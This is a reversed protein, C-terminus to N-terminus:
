EDGGALWGQVIKSIGQVAQDAYEELRGLLNGTSSDYQRHSCCYGACYVEVVAMAGGYALYIPAALRGLVRLSSRGGLRLKTSLVSPLTTFKSAGPRRMSALIQGALDHEGVAEALSAVWAKPLMQGALFGIAKGIIMNMPDNDEICRGTCIIWDDMRDWISRTSEPDTYALPDGMAYQYLNLSDIYDLPDRQMWGGLRSSYMRNRVYDSGTEWDHFYGAYLFPNSPLTADLWKLSQGAVSGDEAAAADNWGRVVRVTGYPDYEYREVITGGERLAIVNYNADQMYFFRRSGADTCNGYGEGSTDTDVDMCIPEDIYQTGWVFQQRPKDAANRIELLQWNHNYYYYEEGDRGGASADGSNEVHKYVRRGLGDYHYTAITQPTSIGPRKVTLLRNWADYTYKYIGDSTM